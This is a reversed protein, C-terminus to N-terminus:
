EEFDRREPAMPKLWTTQRRRQPARGLADDFALSLRSVVAVLGLALAGLVVIVVFVATMSAGGSEGQVRSGIWLAALPAGTWVNVSAVTIGLALLVPKVRM